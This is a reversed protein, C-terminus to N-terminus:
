GSAWTGCCSAGEWVAVTLTRRSAVLLPGAKPRTLTRLLSRLLGAAVTTSMALELPQKVLTRLQAGVARCKGLVAVPSVEVSVKLQTLRPVTSTSRALM